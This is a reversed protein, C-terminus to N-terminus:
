LINMLTFLTKLILIVLNETQRVSLKKSIIKNALLLENELGVLIKAHGQYIKEEIIQRIKDSPWLSNAFVTFSNM